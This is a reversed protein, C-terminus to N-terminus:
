LLYLIKFLNFDVLFEGYNDIGTNGMYRLAQNPLWGHGAKVYAIHTTCWWIYLTRPPSNCRIEVRLRNPAHCDLTTDSCTINVQCHILIRRLVTLCPNQTSYSNAQFRTNQNPSKFYFRLHITQDGKFLSSPEFNSEQQYRYIFKFHIIAHKKDKIM